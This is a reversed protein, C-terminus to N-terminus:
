NLFFSFFFFLEGYVISSVTSPSIDSVLRQQAAVQHSLSRAVQVLSQCGDEASLLHISAKRLGQGVAPCIAFM